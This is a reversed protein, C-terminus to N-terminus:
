LAIWYVLYQMYWQLPRALIYILSQISLVWVMDRGLPPVKSSNKSLISLPIVAGCQVEESVGQSLKCMQSCGNRYVVTSRYDLYSIIYICEGDEKQRIGKIMIVVNIPFNIHSVLDTRRSQCSSIDRGLPLWVQMPLGGMWNGWILQTYACFCYGIM